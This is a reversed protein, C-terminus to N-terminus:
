PHCIRKRYYGFFEPFIGTKIYDKRFASIVGSHKKSDFGDLAQVARM